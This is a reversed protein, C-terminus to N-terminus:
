VAEMECAAAHLLEQLDIMHQETFSITVPQGCLTIDLVPAGSGGEKRARWLDIQDLIDEPAEVAGYLFKACCNPCLCLVNGPRDIWRKRTRSVLYLGEFYPQNDRRSFVTECIQCKGGYQERLFIRVQNDKAEWAKRPVQKFRLAVEPEQRQHEKIEQAIVERRRGPNAATGPLIPEDPAGGAGLKTFATRLEEAYDIAEDADEDLDLEVTQSERELKHKLRTIDKWHKKLFEIEEPEVEFGLEKSIPHRSEDSRMKLIGALLTNRHFQPPLKYLLLGEPRAFRNQETPLWSRNTLLHGM